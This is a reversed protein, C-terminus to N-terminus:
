MFIGSVIPSSLVRVRLTTTLQRLGVSPALRGRLRGARPESGGLFASGRSPEGRTLSQAAPRTSGDAVARAGLDDCSDDELIVSLDAKRKIRRALWNAVKM